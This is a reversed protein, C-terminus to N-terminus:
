KRRLRTDMDRALRENAVGNSLGAPSTELRAPLESADLSWFESDSIGTADSRMEAASRKSVSM